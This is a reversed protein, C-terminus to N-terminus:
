NVRADELEESPGGDKMTYTVVNYDRDFRLGANYLKAYRFLGQLFQEFTEGEEKPSWFHGAEARLNAAWLLQELDKITVSIRTKRELEKLFEALTVQTDEFGIDKSAFGQLANIMLVSLTVLSVRVEGDKPALENDQPLVDLKYGGM